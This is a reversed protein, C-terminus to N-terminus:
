SWPYFPAVYGVPFDTIEAPLEVFGDTGVLGGFDGSTNSPDPTAQREGLPGSRLKVPLLYALKPRFTVPCALAATVPRPVSAGSAGALAPLVYRHLCTYSSVPNGPLAFIPKGEPSVGFWMPKGPRQGVGHFIKRMGQADLEAPLLDFKGKSVGGSILVVDFEAIIHWLMHELEHRMDHVHFREVWPYGALHLAARLAHDNSRRVQHPAVADGVEVLEDGSAVVAIKPRASVTLQTAGIAAAVAIERGTIRTGAPVILEGQRHDSGRRHVSQGPKAASASALVTMKGDESKTDEYPIVCDAGEPLVAGTMVEVCADTSAGLKFPRMGAAQTAEIRFERRQASLDAARLAYGDMTVRDFPPLDRDGRLDSRLVRGHADALACEESGFRPLAERILKEAEAPTLMATLKNAAGPAFKSM